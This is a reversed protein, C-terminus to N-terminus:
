TRGSSTVVKRAERQARVLEKRAAWDTHKVDLDGAAERSKLHELFASGAGNKALLRHVAQSMADVQDDNNSNPFAACEEVFDEVWGGVAPIMVNGSEIFPSVASARAYKSDSVPQPVLGPLKKRLQSIVAPGNAKDEVLHLNATPHRAALAQVQKCTEVFDWQGRVADILYAVKEIRGWVQGVVFDSGKTDKFAMDWSTIVETFDDVHGDYRRWWGRQLVNGADPSPRGQYLATWTRSGVDNKVEDWRGEEWQRASDLYEGVERDLPDTEDKEPRHDAQAPIRLVRWGPQKTLRGALDDEHWRTQILVVPANPSLRTRATDTWWKWVKDRYTDSDAEERDKVPDDIFLVDVPRSTLSGGVGVCYVGGTKGAVNWNGAAKSDERLTLQLQPFGKVDDRILQGFRRAISDGYSAIAVRLDPNRTLMWEAGYHSTRESKGEQPPM